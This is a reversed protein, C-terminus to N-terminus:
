RPRAEAPQAVPQPDCGARHVDGGHEPARVEGVHGAQRVREGGPRQGPGVDVPQYVPRPVDRGHAFCVLPEDRRPAARRPTEPDSAWSVSTPASQNRQRRVSGPSGAAWRPEPSAPRWCCRRRGAPTRRGRARRGPGRQLSAQPGAAASVGSRSGRRPGSAPSCTRAAPRTGGGGAARAPDGRRRRRGHGRRRPRPPGGRDAVVLRTRRDAEPAQREVLGAASWSTSSCSSRAVPRARAGHGARAPQAREVAECALVLVSYQRVRLGHEALAANTARVVQGSARSLLFGLDDALPQGM